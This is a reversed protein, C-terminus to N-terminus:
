RRTATIDVQNGTSVWTSPVIGRERALDFFTGGVAGSQGIYAIPSPLALKEVMVAPTWSAVFPGALNILGLCNPGLIRIGTSASVDRLQGELLRGEHGAEGFGSSYVVGCATGAAGAGRVADVVRDAGVFFLAVDVLDPLDEVSPWCQLGDISEYKPNVLYIEGPFGYRTLQTLAKSSLSDPRSSAGVVAVSRPKFLANLSGASM